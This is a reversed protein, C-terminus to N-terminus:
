RPTEGVEIDFEANGDNLGTVEIFVPYVADDGEVSLDCEMKTGVEAKLDGPCSINPEDQGVAAALQKAAQKEVEAQAVANGGCSGLLAAVLVFAASRRVAALHHVM